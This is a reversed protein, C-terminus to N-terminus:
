NGVSAAGEEGAPSFLPAWLFYCNLNRFELNIDFDCNVIDLIIFSLLPFRLPASPRPPAACNLHPM